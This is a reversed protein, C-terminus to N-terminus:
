AQAAATKLAEVITNPALTLKFANGEQSKAQAMSLEAAKRFNEETAPKGKLWAEAEKLRWPKHAVGGMALRVDTINGGKIQMAAGASVLAFAYSARDRVKLYHTNASLQNFPIDVAIILEGRQLNNDQQPTDGPLRHFDGFPIKREGKPGAVTVIADLAVLAVCMDSPHVAICKDSAGFIAHMRNFGGIAGCGSGPNRKNCPMATDYFYHCRTRQMMNGGVTAMNRLQPSAGAKLAQSLLPFHKIVLANEAVATNKALAGIRLGTKTEEITALPLKNIDVLREPNTVGSKMLDVLNTGGALFMATKDKAMAAIASEKSTVRVYSFQNM